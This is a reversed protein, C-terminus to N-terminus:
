GTTLALWAELLLLWNRSLRSFTEPGSLWKDTLSCDAQKSFSIKSCTKLTLFVLLIAFNSPKSGRIYRSNHCGFYARFLKPVESFCVGPGPCQIRWKQIVKPLELSGTFFPHSTIYSINWINFQPNSILYAM